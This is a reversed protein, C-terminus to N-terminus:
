LITSNFVECYKYFHDPMILITVGDIPPIKDLSGVVAGSSLGVPLGENITIKLMGKLAEEYDVEVMRDIEVLHIWKMGTEVRRMGPIVEGKAPQVGVIELDGHYRNKFYFSIASAHGSTGLSCVIRKPKLGSRKLQIDLEKATFRLHSIFNADNEFQNIHVANDRRSDEKVRELAQTTIQEQVRVVESGLIKLYLDSCKQVSSPLYIRTKLGLSKSICTLAIGTNTSSAEYVLRSSTLRSDNELADILMYWGIRDKISNSFPNLYELKAWVQSLDSSLSKLYILPTPWCSKILESINRCVRLPNNELDEEFGLDELRYEVRDTRNITVPIRKIGLVKLAHFFKYHTLSVKLDEDVEVTEEIKGSKLLKGIDELLEEIPPRPLSRVEDIAVLKM